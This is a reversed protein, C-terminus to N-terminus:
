PQPASAPASQSPAQNVAEGTDVFVSVVGGYGEECSYLFNDVGINLEHFLWIYGTIAGSQLWDVSDNIPATM